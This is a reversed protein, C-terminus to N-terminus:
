NEAYVPWEFGLGHVKEVIEDLSKRGLNRITYTAEYTPYQRMLEGVTNCGARKVCNYARVSLDMEEITTAKLKDTIIRKGEEDRIVANAMKERYERELEEERAKLIVNVKENVRKDIYAKVGHRIIYVGDNFRLKRMAKAEIQRVREQQVGIVEGVEKLSKQEFYRMLLVKKERETLARLCMVLLLEAEDSMHDLPDDDMVGLQTLLNYPWDTGLADARKGNLNM